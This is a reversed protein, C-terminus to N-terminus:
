EGKERQLRVVDREPDFSRRGLSVDKLFWRRVSHASDYDSVHSSSMRAASAEDVRIRSFSVSDVCCGPARNYKPSFLVRLDFLRAESIGECRIDEFRINRIHNIDGCNVALLGHGDIGQLM